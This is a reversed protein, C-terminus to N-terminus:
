ASDGVSIVDCDKATESRAHDQSSTTSRSRSVSMSRSRRIASRCFDCSSCRIAIWAFFHASGSLSFSFPTVVGTAIAHRFFIRQNTAYPTTPAPTKSNVFAPFASLNAVGAWPQTTSHVPARCALCAAARRSSPIAHLASARTTPWSLTGNPRTRRVPWCLDATEPASKATGSFRIVSWRVTRIRPVPIRLCRCLHAPRWKCRMRSRTATSLRPPGMPAKGSQGWPARMRFDVQDAVAM